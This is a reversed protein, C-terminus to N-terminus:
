RGVIEAWYRLAHRQPSLVPTSRPRQLIVEATDPRDAAEYVRVLSRRAVDSMDGFIHVALRDAEFVDAIDDPACAKEFELL